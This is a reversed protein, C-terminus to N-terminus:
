CCQSPSAKGQWVHGLVYHGMEHGMVFLLERDTMRKLITPQAALRDHDHDGDLAHRLHRHYFFWTRGLRRAVNRLAASFGTALLLVFVTISWAPEVLWLWNGSRYYQMAQETPEPVAVPATEDVVM